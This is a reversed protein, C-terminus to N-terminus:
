LGVNVAAHGGASNLFRLGQMHSRALTIRFEATIIRDRILFGSELLLADLPSQQERRDFDM